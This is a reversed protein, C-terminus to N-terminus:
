QPGWQLHLVARTDSSTLRVQEPLNKKVNDPNFNLRGMEQYTGNDDFDVILLIYNHNVTPLSRYPLQLTVPLDFADKEIPQTCEILIKGQDNMIIYGIDPKSNNDWPIGNNNQPIFEVKVATVAVEQELIFDFRDDCSALLIFSLYLSIKKM